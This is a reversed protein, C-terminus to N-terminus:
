RAIEFSFRGKVPHGDASLGRWEVTYLGKPLPSPTARFEVVPEMEDSRELAFANGTADFLRVTTIRIPADFSMGVVEPPDSLVAGDAPITAEQESHAFAAGAAFMGLAMVIAPARLLVRSCHKM